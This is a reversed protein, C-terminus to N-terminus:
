PIKARNGVMSADLLIALNQMRGKGGGFFIAFCHHSCKWAEKKVECPTGGLFFVGCMKGVPLFRLNSCQGREIKHPGGKMCQFPQQRRPPALMKGFRGPVATPTSTTPRSCTSIMSKLSKHCASTFTPWVFQPALFLACCLNQISTTKKKCTAAHKQCYIHTYIYICLKKKCSGDCQNSATAKDEQQGPAWTPGRGWSLKLKRLTRFIETFIGILIQSKPYILKSIGPYKPYHLGM